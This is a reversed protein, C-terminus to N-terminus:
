PTEEVRRRADPVEAELRRLPGYSSALSAALIILVGLSLFLLGVGRGPGVGIVQGVSGALLGGPMLLPQFVRDALPGAALVALPVTSGALLRRVAYVRGQLELPVKSQWLAQSCAILIPNCFSFGFAAGAILAVSPQLGGALLIVGQAMLVFLITRVKAKPGGWASLAASGAFHGGAGVSLVTGLATASAFGLVLPALLVHVIGILLNAAAFTALLAVLGRWAVLFRWGRSFEEWFSSRARAEGPAPPTRALRPIRAVSTMTVAFAFTALDIAIVGGLGIWPYLAGAALPAVMAAGSLGLEALGNARVLQEKPVLLPVSTSFAPAQFAEFVANWVVMVYVHWLELRDSWVLLGIAMTGIGAGTDALVLAWKRPWRDIVTGVLPALLLQPATACFAILTYDGVKGSQQFVWVGLVFSTLNSGLLSVTQGFLVSLFAVKGQTWSGKTQVQVDM